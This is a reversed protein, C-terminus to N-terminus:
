AARVEHLFWDVKEQMVQMQQALEVSAGLVQSAATSTSTTAESLFAMGQQASQGSRAVHQVNESIGHAAASQESVAVAISSAVQNVEEISRVIDQMAMMSENSSEQIARVHEAIVDTARATQSALEKVESAVVAFGRGSEGARAAEITANLALLNTQSAISKILDVVEAIATAASNLKQVTADTARAKLAATSSFSSSQEAQRGIESISAALEDGNTALNQVSASSEATAQAMVDSQESVSASIGLMMKASSELEHSASAVTSVIVAATHEFEKILGNVRDARALREAQAIDAEAMMKLRDLGAQKFVQLTRAMFGIEDQRSDGQIVVKALASDTAKATEDMIHRTLTDMTRISGRLPKIVGYLVYAIAAFSIAAALLAIALLISQALNQAAKAEVNVANAQDLLLEILKGILETGPDIAPYMDKAAFARLGEIDKKRILGLATNSAAYAAKIPGEIERLIAAEEGSKKSAVYSSWLEQNIQVAGAISKEGEAPTFIGDRVKHTADVIEVAFKDSIVKLNRMPVIKDDYLRNLAQSQQQLAWWTSSGLTALCAVFLLVVLILRSSISQLM